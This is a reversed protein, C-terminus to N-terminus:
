DVALYAHFEQQSNKAFQRAKMDNYLDRLRREGFVVPANELASYDDPQDWQLKDLMRNRLRNLLDIFDPDTIARFNQKLEVVHTLQQWISAGFLGRHGRITETTRTALRGLLDSAYLASSGVPRLQGLDGAFIVNVGGFPKQNTNGQNRKAILIRESIQCLLEASVM